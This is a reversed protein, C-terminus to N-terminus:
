VCYGEIQCGLRGTVVALGDMALELPIEVGAVAAVDNANEPGVGPNKLFRPEALVVPLVNPVPSGALVEVLMNLANALDDPGPTVPLKKPPTGVASEVLAADAVVGDVDVENDVPVGDSFLSMLVGVAVVCSLTPIGALAPPTNACASDSLLLDTTAGGAFVILVDGWVPFIKPEAAVVAGEVDAPKNPRSGLPELAPTVAGEVVVAGLLKSPKEGPDGDDAKVTVLVVLGNKELILGAEVVADVGTPFAGNLVTEVAGVIVATVLAGSAEDVEDRLPIKLLGVLVLLAKPATELAALVPNPERLVAALM